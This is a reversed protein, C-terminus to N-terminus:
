VYEALKAMQETHIHATSPSNSSSCWKANPSECMQETHIHALDESISSPCWEDLSTKCIGGQIEVNGDRPSIESLESYM